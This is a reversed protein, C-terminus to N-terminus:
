GVEVGGGPIPRCRDHELGNFIARERDLNPIWIHTANAKGGSLGAPSFLSVKLYVRSVFRM